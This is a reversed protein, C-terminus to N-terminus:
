RGVVDPRGIAARIRYLPPTAVRKRATEDATRAPRPRTAAQERTEAGPEVVLRLGQAGGAFTVAAAAVAISLATRKM